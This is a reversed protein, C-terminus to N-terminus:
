EGFGEEFYREATGLFRKATAIKDARSIKQITILPFKELAIEEAERPNLANVRLEFRRGDALRAVIKYPHEKSTGFGFPAIRGGGVRRVELEGPEPGIVAPRTDRIPYRTGKAPGRKRTRINTRAM